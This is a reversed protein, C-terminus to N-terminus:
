RRSEARDVFELAEEPSRALHTVERQSEDLMGAEVIHRLYADWGDGLLIVPERRLCGARHLAWLFGLEALTGAKGPLVIFAGSREVLERTRAYLDPTARTEVLWANGTRARFVDCLVGFTPAGAERAGRSAAEMVGGYGGTVVEHGAEGLKRGVDRALAYLPDGDVPESSGFVAVSM